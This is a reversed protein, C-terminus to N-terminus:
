GEEVLGVFLVVCRLARVAVLYWTEGSSPLGNPAMM